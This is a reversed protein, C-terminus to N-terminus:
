MWSHWVTQQSSSTTSHEDHVTISQNLVPLRSFQQHLDYYVPSTFRHIHM